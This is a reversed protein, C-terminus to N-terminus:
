CAKRKSFPKLNVRRSLHNLSKICCDGGGGGGRERISENAGRKILCLTGVGVGEVITVSTQFRRGKDGMRDEEGDWKRHSIIVLSSSIETFIQSWNMPPSTGLMVRQFALDVAKKEKWKM